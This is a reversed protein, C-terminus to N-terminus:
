ADHITEIPPRATHTHPLQLKPDSGPEEDDDSFDDVTVGPVARGDKHSPEFLVTSSGSRSRRIASTDAASSTAQEKGELPSPSEAERTNWSLKSLASALDEPMVIANPPEENRSEWGVPPSPPPSIFFLKQSEPAQLHQDTPPTVPTHTGFYIRMRHGMLNEGDLEGRVKIADEESYFSCVIRAFSKLPSWSALTASNAIIDRLGQLHDAQFIDADKLNTILLTNTPPSPTMLPPISSLDLSLNSRSSRKSSAKSNPDYLRFSGATPSTPSAPASSSTPSAPADNASM